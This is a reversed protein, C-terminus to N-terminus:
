PNAAVNYYDHQQGTHSPLQEYNVSRQSNENLQEYTTTTIDSLPQSNNTAGPESPHHATASVCM